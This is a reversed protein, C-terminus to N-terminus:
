TPPQGENNTVVVDLKMWGTFGTGDENSWCFVFLPGGMETYRKM